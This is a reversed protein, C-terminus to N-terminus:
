KLTFEYEAGSLSNKQDFLLLSHYKGAPLTSMDIECRASCTPYLRKCGISYNHVENGQADFIKFTITPKVLSEGVNEYHFGFKRGDLRKYAIKIENNDENGIHTVMLFGYRVLTNIGLCPEALTEQPTLPPQEVLLMSWYTGRLSPDKPVEITCNIFVKQQPPIEIYLPSVKMWYGNSRSHSGIKEFFNEGQANYRYDVHSIKVQIPEMSENCLPISEKYCEGPSCKKEHTMQDPISLGVGFLVGEFYLTFALFLLYCM